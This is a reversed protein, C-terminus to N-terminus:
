VATVVHLNLASKPSFIIWPNAPDTIELGDVFFTYSQIGPEAPGLTVSWVGKDDKALPEKGKFFLSKVEVVKAQPARLRFTIRRDPHVVPSVVQFPRPVYARRRKSWSTKAAEQQQPKGSEQEAEAALLTMVGCLVSLFVVLAYCRRNMVM